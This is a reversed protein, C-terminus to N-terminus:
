HRNRETDVSVSSSSKLVQKMGKGQIVDGGTSGLFKVVTPGGSMTIM